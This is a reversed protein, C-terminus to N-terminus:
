AIGLMYVQRLACPSITQKSEAPTGSPKQRGTGEGGARPVLGMLTDKANSFPSQLQALVTTAKTAPPPEARGPSTLSCGDGFLRFCSDLHSRLETHAPYSILFVTSQRLQGARTRILNKHADCLDAPRIRFYADPGLSM